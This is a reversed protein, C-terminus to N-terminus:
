SCAVGLYTCLAEAAAATLREWPLRSTVQEPLTPAALLAPATVVAIGFAFALRKLM